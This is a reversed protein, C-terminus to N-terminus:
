ARVRHADGYLGAMVCGAASTPWAPRSRKAPKSPKKAKPNRKRRELCQPCIWNGEPAKDLNLCAVHYWEIECDDDDCGIMEGFSVQRCTCYVKSDLNDDMAGDDGLDASDYGAGATATVAVKNATTRKAPPVDEDEDDDEDDEEGHGRKTGRKAGKAGTGGPTIGGSKGTSGERSKGIDIGLAGAPALSDNSATVAMATSKRGGRPEEDGTDDESDDIQRQQKAAASAKAAAAAIQRATKPGSDKGYAATSAISESPSIGRPQKKRKVPAKKKEGNVSSVDDDDQRGIQDKRSRKKKTPTGRDFPSGTTRVGRRTAAPIPAPPLTLAATYPSPPDKLLLTSASLLESIHRQHGMIGDCAGGAVRIKDDGGLKYRAAEEAIEQLLQFRREPPVSPDQVWNILQHLKTELNCLTSYLVAGLENLDSHVRTLEIPIQDITDMLDQILLIDNADNPKPDPPPPSAAVPAPPAASAAAAKPPM